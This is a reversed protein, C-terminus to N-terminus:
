GGQGSAPPRSWSTGAMVVPVAPDDRALAVAGVLGRSHAARGWATCALDLDVLAVPVRGPGVSTVAGPESVPFSAPDVDLGRGIAKLAAEKRAWLRARSADDVPVADDPHCAVAGFGAFATERAFLLDIGVPALRTLAVVVVPAAERDGAPTRAHSVSLHLGADTVVRPRGHPQGCRPCTRDLQVDAPREALVQGLARRLLLYARARRTAVVPTAACGVRLREAPSLTELDHPGVERSVDSVCVVVADAVAVRPDSSLSTVTLGPWPPAPPLAGRPSAM